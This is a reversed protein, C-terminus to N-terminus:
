NMEMFRPENHEIVGEKSWVNWIFANWRKWSRTYANQPDPSGALLLQLKPLV